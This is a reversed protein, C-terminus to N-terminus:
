RVVAAQVVGQTDIRVTGLDVRPTSRIRPHDPSAPVSATVVFRYTGDSLYPPYISWTGNPGATTHGLNIPRSSGVPAGTLHVDSGPVATGTFRPHNTTAQSQVPRATGLYRAAFVTTRADAPDINATVLAQNPYAAGQGLKPVVNAEYWDVVSFDGSHSIGPGTIDTYTATGPGKVPVQGWLNLYQSDMDSGKALAYYTHQYYVEAQDVNAPVSAIPDKAKSQYQNVLARAVQGMYSPKTSYQKGPFANNAAHPDLMTFKIFGRDLQPPPDGELDKLAVSDVIAGESHGILHLDVPADAPFQALERRIWAALRPGQKAASGPSHSSGVWNFPLIADYGQASLAQDLRNQWAPIRDGPTKQLGGHTTVALSYTRFGAVDDSPDAQAVQGSPDAVALVFPKQPIITLGGPVPVTVEHRGVTAQDAPVQSTAVQVDSADWGADASRYIAIGFGNPLDANRIEYDVVVQKSDTTSAGLVAVDPLATLLQRGELGEVAPRLRAAPRDVRSGTPKSGIRM